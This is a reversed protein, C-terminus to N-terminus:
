QFSGSLGLAGIGVWPEVHGRLRRSGSGSGETPAQTAQPSSGGVFLGVVGLVAGAGALVFSVDSVTALTRATSIEGDVSPNCLTGGAQCQDSSKVNSTKSLSAIGTILGALAGAGAVSFGTIIVEPSGRSGGGAPKEAPETVEKAEGTLTPPAAAPREPPLDITIDKSENEAIDVEQQGSATGAEAAVVHHGPNVRIAQDVLEAPEEIDDVRVKPTVRDPANRLTLRLSPIRAELETELAIAGQRAPKFPGPEDRAEPIRSARLATDRAEVLLGVAAQVRALEFGTTPVHMIADAGAFAKIAARLDGRARAARGEAMLGRATEKETATPTAGAVTARGLVVVVGLLAVLLRRSAM